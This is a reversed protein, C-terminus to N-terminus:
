QQVVEHNAERESQYFRRNLYTGRQENYNDMDYELAVLANWCVQQFTYGEWLDDVGNNSYWPQAQDIDTKELWIEFKQIEAVPTVYGPQNEPMEAKSRNFLELVLDGRWSYMHPIIGAMIRLQTNTYRQLSKQDKKPLTLQQKHLELESEVIKEVMGLVQQMALLQAPASNELKIEFAPGETTEQFVIEFPIVGKLVIPEGINEPEKPKEKEVVKM